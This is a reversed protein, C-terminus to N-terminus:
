SKFERVLHFAEAYVNGSQSGRNMALAKVGERSRPFPFDRMEVGYMLLARWKEEIEQEDLSIFYNPAFPESFGWESSSLVEYCLVRKVINDGCPRAAIITSQYVVKHDNNCDGHYHTFVTDPGFSSIAEEIIKNIEIIPTKDFRGCPLNNFEYDSVGLSILADIASQNRKVIASQADECYPDDYRCSSGEGIFLIKFLCGKSILKAITGGCGLLEDDPHAAIVLIKKM